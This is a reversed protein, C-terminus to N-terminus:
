PIILPRYSTRRRRPRTEQGVKYLPGARPARRQASSPVLILRLTGGVLPQTGTLTPVLTLSLHRSILRRRVSGHISSPRGYQSSTHTRRSRLMITLKGPDGDCGKEDVCRTMVAFGGRGSALGVVM